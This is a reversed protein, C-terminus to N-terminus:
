VAQSNVKVCWFEAVDGARDALSDFTHPLGIVIYGVGGERGLRHQTRNLELASLTGSHVLIIVRDALRSARRLAQGELPGEWAELRVRDAEPRSRVVELPTVSPRTALATGSSPRPVPYPGSPPSTRISEAAPIPGHSSLSENPAREAIDWDSNMLDALEAALTVEAPSGGVILVNGVADPVYDDLGAVLEDLGHPDNPWSTTGLVPGSGWFAVEAPTQVRLGRFEGWLVFLLALGFSLLPVAGFVILKMKNRVPYEPVSGPDIIAFGSSPHQLADELTAETQRLRQVLSENVKVEALLASAEGEIGSFAEVRQHAKEALDALGRRRERLAELSVQAKRLEMSIAQYTTNTALLGDGSNSTGGARLQARLQNVQHQLAQVRPHDGSLTARATALERRLEEYAAREPSNGTAIVRTQPTRALQAQLSGIQAELARVESAALESQARLDAASELTSRQETSLDAIGHMDRFEDYRRRAIETEGEAATIRKDIRGVEAEVRMAQRDEHYEIFIDSVTKAFQAADQATEGPVSIWLIGARADLDHRIFARLTTLNGHFGVENAIRRLLAQRMLADAAPKVADDVPPMGEIRTIGEFKLVATSEYSSTMFMKAIVFGVILGALGM